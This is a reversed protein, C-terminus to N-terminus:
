PILEIKVKNDDNLLKFSLLKSTNVHFSNSNLMEIDTDLSASVEYGDGSVSINRTAFNWTSDAPSKVRVLKYSGEDLSAIMHINSKLNSLSGHALSAKAVETTKDLGFLGPIITAVVVSALLALFLISFEMSIQGKTRRFKRGFIKKSNNDPKYKSKITM